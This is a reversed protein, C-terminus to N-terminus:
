PVSYHSVTVSLPETHSSDSWSRLGEQSSTDCDDRNNVGIEVEGAVLFFCMRNLSYPVTFM